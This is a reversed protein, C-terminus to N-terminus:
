SEAAVIVDLAKPLIEVTIEKTKGMIEGDIQLMTKKSTQVVAKRCSFVEV